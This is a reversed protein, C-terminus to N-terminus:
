KSERVGHHLNFNEETNLIEPIYLVVPNKTIEKLNINM